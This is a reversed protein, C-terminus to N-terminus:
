VLTQLKAKEDDNLAAFMENFGPKGAEVRFWGALYEATEDDRVRSTMSGGDDENAYAMLQSKTLGSGLDLTGGPGAGVDEWDDGDDSGESDLAAAADAPNQYKNTAASSLEEVLIKLIKLNAPISTYRDPNLKGQSRTKIRGTNEVVLDGKVAIQKIRPDELSYLKSLAIVNQRIEDFGAFNISNELWKTLVINLGNQGNIEVASLFDVIENPAETSLGAFVMLLSQIFQAREATALRVAVARMLEMLYSGLKDIGAKMILETALGGVETAASEDVDPSNLLRNIITLTVEVASKGTSDTWQLFQASGKGLMHQVALTAPRVLEAETGEMLVRNLKPMLAAIFGDPLPQSGYEALASVLEAALNTLASEQTMNAVDFAGSLAPITKGCLIVYADHGLSTAVSSVINEFTETVLQFLQFNAAGDSGLTFLLDLAPGELAAAPNIAITDRLTEILCAKIDDADELEDRLDHSGVFEQVAAIIQPQMSSAITVPPAQLYDNMVKLCVIKVLDTNKASDDVTIAHVAAQFASNAPDTFGNGVIQFLSAAVFHSAGQLFINDDNIYKAVQQLVGTATEDSLKNSTEGVDRLLHNLVFLMAEPEKWNSVPQTLNQQCYYLVADVPIMRLWESLGRIVLDACAARPTYNATISTAECLYLNPDYEWLEGEESPIQAYTILLKILEQLWGVTHGSGPAHKIQKDLEAKVGPARFSMQLFDIEELVLFDLTYPLGDADELKGQRDDDIFFERYTPAIRSLEEWVAEFLNVVHPTLAQVYM